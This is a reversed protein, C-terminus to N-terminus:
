VVLAQNMGVEFIFWRFSMDEDLEASVGLRKHSIDRQIM